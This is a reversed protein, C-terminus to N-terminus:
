KNPAGIDLPPLPHWFRPIMGRWSIYGGDGDHEIAFDGDESRIALVVPSALGDHSSRLAEDSGECFVLVRKGVPATDAPLWGRRLYDGRIIALMAAAGEPDVIGPGIKM